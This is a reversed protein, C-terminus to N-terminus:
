KVVVPEPCVYPFSVFSIRKRASNPAARVIHLTSIPPSPCLVLPASADCMCVLHSFRCMKKQTKGINTGLRDQCFSANKYLFPMEFIGNKAPLIKVEISPVCFAVKQAM